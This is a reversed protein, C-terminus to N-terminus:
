VVRERRIANEAINQLRIAGVVVDAVGRFCFPVGLTGKLSSRANGIRHTNHYNQPGSILFPRLIAGKAYPIALVADCGRRNPQSKGIM